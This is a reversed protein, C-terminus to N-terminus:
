DDEKVILNGSHKTDNGPIIVSPLVLLHLIAVDKVYLVLRKLPNKKICSSYNLHKVLHSAQSLLCM